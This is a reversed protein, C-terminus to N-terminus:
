TAGPWGNDQEGDSERNEGLLSEIKKLLLHTRQQGLAAQLAVARLLFHLAAQPEIGPVAPAMAAVGPRRHDGAVHLLAQEHLRDAVAVLIQLHRRLLLERR